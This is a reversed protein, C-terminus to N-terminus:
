LHQLSLRGLFRYTSQIKYWSETVPFGGFLYIVVSKPPYMTSMNNYGSSGNERRRAFGVAAGGSLVLVLPRKSIKHRKWQLRIYFAVFIVVYINMQM